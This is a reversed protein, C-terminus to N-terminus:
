RRRRQGKSMKQMSKMMGQMSQLNQMGGTGGDASEFKKMLNMFGAQGGIQKLVGQPILNALKGMQQPNKPLEGHKGFPLKKMKQAAAAFPKYMQILEQIYQPHVGAGRAIRRKRDISEEILKIDSDLETATMSDMIVLFTQLRKQSAEESEKPLANLGPIMQMISSFSGLKLINEFQDKLMRLNFKGKKISDILEKQDDLKHEKVREVLTEVDGRGLIRKVFRATNFKEMENIHEGIGIFIIPANTAAVASLAGGGKAHGDLKTVIVSGVDVKNSFAQAQSFAAQGITSDLM